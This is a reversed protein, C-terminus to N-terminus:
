RTEGHPYIKISARNRILSYKQITVQLPFAFTDHAPFNSKLLFMNM